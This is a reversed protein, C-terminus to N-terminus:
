NGEIEESDAEYMRNDTPPEYKEIESLSEDILNEYYDVLNEDVANINLFCVLFYLQLIM